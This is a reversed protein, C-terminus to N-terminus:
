KTENLVTKMPKEYLKFQAAMASHTTSQQKLISVFEDPDPNEGDSQQQLLDTVAHGADDHRQTLRQLSYIVNNVSNSM